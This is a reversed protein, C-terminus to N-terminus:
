YGHRKLFYKILLIIAEYYGPANNAMTLLHRYAKKHEAKQSVIYNRSANEYIINRFSRELKGSEGKEKVYIRFLEKIRLLDNINEGNLNKAGTSSKSHMRYCALPRRIYGIPYKSSIRVWMEWDETWTLKPNFYGVADYVEKRVTISPTQIKQGHILIKHFDTFVSNERERLESIDIINNDEDVFFHRCYCAGINPNAEYMKLMEDYFDPLVYDDGHLLHIIEGKARKLATEFNKIHGVNNTQKYFTVRGNGFEKVVQEVNDTSFDDVIQIEMLGEGLDQELVSKLTKALYEACNYTPIMVSIKISETM